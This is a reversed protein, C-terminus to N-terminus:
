FFLYLQTTWIHKISVLLGKPYYVLPYNYTKGATEINHLIFIYRNDLREFVILSAALQQNPPQRTLPYTTSQDTLQHDM